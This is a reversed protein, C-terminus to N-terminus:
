VRLSEIIKNAKIWTEEVEATPISDAVIGGGAHLYLRDPTTILTRILINSDMAGDFGIWALSGCYASRRTPELQDIIQCARIKPAGSISGGPFCDRMLDLADCGPRLQGEVASTLHYLGEYHEVQNLQTVHVSDDTCNRAIDNRLLDVIMANEACEKQNLLLEEPNKDDCLTGKIPRTEVHGNIVRLFREPSTCSLSVADTECYASFPAPNAQRLSLYHTFPDFDDPRAASFRRALCAQFIDGAHILDIVAQISAAYTQDDQEPKLEVPPFASAKGYVPQQTVCESPYIGVCMDPIPIDAKAQEGWREYRRGLDYGFYGAAGGRFVGDSQQGPDYGYIMLQERILDFPDTDRIQGNLYVHKGAATILAIPETCLYSHRSRPDNARASDFLIKM